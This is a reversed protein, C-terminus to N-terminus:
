KKNKLKYGVIGHILFGGAWFLYFVLSSVQIKARVLEHVLFVLLATYLVFSVVVFWPWKPPHIYNM